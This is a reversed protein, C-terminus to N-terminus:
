KGKKTYYYYIMGGTLALLVLAEKGGILQKPPNQNRFEWEEFSLVNNAKAKEVYLAYENNKGDIWQAFAVNTLGNDKASKYLQNATLNEM